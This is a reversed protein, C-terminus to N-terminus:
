NYRRRQYIKVLFEQVGVKEVPLNYSYVRGCNTGVCTPFSFEMKGRFIGVPKRVLKEGCYCRGEKLFEIEREREEGIKKLSEETLCGDGCM